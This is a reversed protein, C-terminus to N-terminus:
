APGAPTENNGNRGCEDLFTAVWEPGFKRTLPERLFERLPIREREGKERGARCEAIEEYHLITSGYTRVRLPFLHCSVPKRWGIRGQLYAREFLCRAIEGDFYVYVCERQDVCPTARAGPPGDVVGEAEIVKRSAERLEDRIVPFAKLIEGVESEDLPAGRGGELTCCGGKCAATDCCFHETGVARDVLTEGVLFM